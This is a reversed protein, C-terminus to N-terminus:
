VSLAIVAQGQGFPSSLPLTIASFSSACLKVDAKTECISHKLGSGDYGEGGVMLEPKAGMYCCRLGRSVESNLKYPRLSRIKTPIENYAYVGGPLVIFVKAVDCGGGEWNM